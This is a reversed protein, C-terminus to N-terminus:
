VNLFDAQQWQCHQIWYHSWFTDDFGKVGRTIRVNSRLSMMVPLKRNMSCWQSVSDVPNSFLKLLHSTPHVHSPIFIYHVQEYPLLQWKQMPPLRLLRLFFLAIPDWVASCPFDAMITQQQKLLFFFAASDAV